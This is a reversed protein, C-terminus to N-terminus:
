PHLCITVTTGVGLESEITLEGGHKSIIEQCISLGLGAGGLKRSRSKEVRYFPEVINELDDKSIGKGKDKIQIYILDDHWLKLELKDGESYKIANDILNILVQRIKEGDVKAKIEALDAETTLSFKKMRLAMAELVNEIIEKLNEEKKTLKLDYQKLKSLELLNEVMKLLTSGEQQVYKISKEKEADDKIRTILDAYGIINTLPTRIEHTVSDYFRKQKAQEEELNQIMTQIDQGMKEFSLALSEVEDGTKIKEIKDFNGKGFEKAASQLKELPNILRFSFLYSLAFVLIIAAIFLVLFIVILDQRLKDLEFLSYQYTVSGLIQEDFIIPFSFSFVRQDDATNIFYARNGKLAERQEPRLGFENPGTIAVPYGVQRMLESELSNKNEEILLQPADSSRAELYQILYRQSFNSQSLLQNYINNLNHDYVREIAVIGMLLFVIIIITANIAFVKNRLKM